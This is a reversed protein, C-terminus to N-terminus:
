LGAYPKEDRLMAYIIELMKCATAIMAVKKNKKLCLRAYYKGLKSDKKRVAVHCCQVLMWRLWRSGQKTIHGMRCKDGSQYVSPVLGSYSKLKKVTPFRRFDGIEALITMAAYDSIGYITKLLEM